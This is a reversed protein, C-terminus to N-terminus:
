SELPIVHKYFFHKHQFEVRALTSYILKDPNEIFM